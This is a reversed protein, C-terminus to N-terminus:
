DKWRIVNASYRVSCYIKPILTEITWVSLDIGATYSVPIYLEFSRHLM